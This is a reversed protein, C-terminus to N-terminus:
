AAPIQGWAMQVARRALVGAMERRYEAGGRWDGTPRVAQKVVTELRELLDPTVLQGELIHEAAPVRVPRDAVGGLALRVGFARGGEADRFARSAACVIPLDAPTRAVDAFGGGTLADSRPMRVEVILVRQKLLQTRYALFSDLRVQRREAEVWVILEADLALLTVALPHRGDATVLTGGLTSQARLTASASRCAAEGLVGDALDDVTESEVLAELSSMAGIRLPFPGGTADAEQPDASIYDLGLDHLDVVAEVGPAGRGVLHTGGALVVTKVDPRQLLRLADSLETPRHYETVDRM